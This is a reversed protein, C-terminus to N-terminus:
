NRVCFINTYHKTLHYVGNQNNEETIEKLGGETISYVRFGMNYIMEIFQKPTYNALNLIDPCFEIVLKINFNESLIRKMGQIALPEAGEIDMKIWDVKEKIIEDLRISNVSIKVERFDAPFISHNGTNNLSEYFNIVGNKNSVAIQELIINKLWKTNKKLMIFLEPNPEFAYVKGTRGM